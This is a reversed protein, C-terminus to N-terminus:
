PSAGRLGFLPRAFRGQECLDRGREEFALVDLVLKTSDAHPDCAHESSRASRDLEAGQSLRIGPLRGVLKTRGVAIDASEEERLVGSRIRLDATSHASRKRRQKGHGDISLPERSLREFRFREAPAVLRLRRDQTCDAV